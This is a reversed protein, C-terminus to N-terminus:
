GFAEAKRTEFLHNATALDAEESAGVQGAEPTVRTNKFEQPANLFAFGTQNKSLALALEASHEQEHMFQEALEEVRRPDIVGVCPAEVPTTPRRGM